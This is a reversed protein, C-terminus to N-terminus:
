PNSQAPYRVVTFNRLTVSDATASPMQGFFSLTLNNAINEFASGAGVVQGSSTGWTQSQWAQGAADLGLSVKGGLVGDAATGARALITTGGWHFEGTFGTTTGGHGFTFQVDIRDGSTLLGAPITCTGLQTSTTASTGAGVSSCVVQPSTLSGLPNSPNAWRYNAVLVDSTQPISGLFFTITRNVVSFDVGPNQLVGNRFLELSTGPSPINALTFTVNVGNAVGGPIESDAFSSSGGGGGGSGGGGCVGSTGDVHVCDSLNGAAADIQGGQNIVAVRGPSFGVGATPRIGLANSLGIVDGIQVPSIVPGPGVVTGSSIRVDRVRLVLSSPPVAWIESFMIKGASNYSIEYQAGPTATTTPVLKVSLVGNVIQLTLDSQAINATDGSLFSKWHIFMTGTFRTGDARYLIDQISTLAPGVAQGVAQQSAFGAAMVLLIVARKFQFM